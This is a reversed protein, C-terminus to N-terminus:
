ELFEGAPVPTVLPFKKFERFMVTGFANVRLGFMKGPNTFKKSVVPPIEKPGRLVSIAM